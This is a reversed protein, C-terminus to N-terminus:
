LPMTVSLGAIYPTVETGKPHRVGRMIEPLDDPLTDRRDYELNAEGLFDYAARHLAPSLSHANPHGLVYARRHYPAERYPETKMPERESERQPDNEVNPVPVAAPAVEWKLPYLM